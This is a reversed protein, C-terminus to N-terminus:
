IRDWAFDFTAQMLNMQHRLRVKLSVNNKTGDWDRYTETTFVVDNPYAGTFYYSYSGKQNAPNSSFKQEGTLRYVDNYNKIIKRVLIQQNSFILTNGLETGEGTGWTYRSEHLDIIYDVEETSGYTNVFTEVTNVIANAIKKSASKADSYTERPFARNLDSYAIGNYSSVYRKTADDAIINAKPIILISGRIGYLDKDYNTPDNFLEVLEEGARWGATEDGHIGGVIVIAPGEKNTLYQHVATECDTGTLINWTTHTVEVPECTCKELCSTETCSSDKCKKCYVCVSACGLAETTLSTVETQGQSDSFNKGCVSCSWYEITGETSCTPAVAEHHTLTHGNDCTQASSSSNISSSSGNGCATMVLMSCLVFVLGIKFRSKKM